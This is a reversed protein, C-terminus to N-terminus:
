TAPADKKFTRRPQYLDPDEATAGSMFQYRHDRETVRWRATPRRPATFAVYFDGDRAWMGAAGVESCARGRCVYGGNTHLELVSSGDRWAGVLAAENTIWPNWDVAEADLNAWAVLALFCLLAGGSATTAGRRPSARIGAVVLAAGVILLALFGIAAILYGFPFATRFVLIDM